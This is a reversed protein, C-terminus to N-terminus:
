PGTTAEKSKAIQRLGERAEAEVDADPKLRLVENFTDEAKQRLSPDGDKQAREWYIQARALQLAPSNRGVADLAGAMTDEIARGVPDSDASRPRDDSPRPARPASIPPPRVGQRNGGEFTNRTWNLGYLIGLVVFLAPWRRRRPKNARLRRKLKRRSTSLRGGPVAVPPMSPQAPQSVVPRAALGPREAVAPRESTRPLEPIMPRPAEAAVRTPSAPMAVPRAEPAQSSPERRLDTALSQMSPCRRALDRELARMVASEIHPPIEQRRSRPPVITGYLIEHLVGLPHAAVFPRSGTLMEYLMAGLSFVDSRADIPSGNAQEPSMYDVTGVLM